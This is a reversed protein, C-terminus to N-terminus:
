TSKRRRVAAVVMLGAVLMAYVEPEPVPAAATFVLDLRHSGMDLSWQGGRPDNSFGTTLLSFSGPNYGNISNSTFLTFRHDMSADFGAADGALDDAGLSRLAITFPQSSDALLTLVGDIELQDYGIGAAGAADRLTWIYAGGGQFTTNGTRGSGGLAGGRRIELASTHIDAGDLQLIGGTVTTPGSHTHSTGGLIWTGSGAKTLALPASGNTLRGSFEATDDDFDVTLTAAQSGSNTILGAGSQVSRVAGLTTSHGRLDLKGSGQATTDFTLQSARTTAGQTYLQLEAKDRLTIHAGNVVGQGRAVLVSNNQFHLQGRTLVGGQVWQNGNWIKGADGLNTIVVLNNGFNVRTTDSAVALHSLQLSSRSGTPSTGANFTFGDQTVTVRTAVVGGAITRSAGTTQVSSGGQGMPISVGINTGTPGPPPASPPASIANSDIRFIFTGPSGPVTNTAQPLNTVSPTRSGPVEYFNVGDGASFGVLPYSTSAATQTWNIGNTPYKFVAYSHIGDSAIVAQFTNLKDTRQNYYGVRDWTVVQAFTPNFADVGLYGAQIESALADLEQANTTTRYWVQGGSSPRTDVDGWFPAIAPRFLGSAPTSNYAVLQGDFSLIGNNNVFTTNYRGGYFSLSQDTGLVGTGILSASSSCDDCRTLATDGAASGFAYLTAGAHAAAQVSLGGLVLLAPRFLRRAAGASSRITFM